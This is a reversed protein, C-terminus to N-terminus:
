EQYRGFRSCPIVQLSPEAAIIKVIILVAPSVAGQEEISPHAVHCRKETRIQSSERLRRLVHGDIEMESSKTIGKDIEVVLDVAAIAFVISRPERRNLWILIPDELDKRVATWCPQLLFVARDAAKFQEVRPEEPRVFRHFALRVCGPM